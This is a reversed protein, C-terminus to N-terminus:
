RIRIMGASPYDKVILWGGGPSPKKHLTSDNKGIPNKEFRRSSAAQKLTPVQDDSRISSVM